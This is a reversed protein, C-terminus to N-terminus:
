SIICGLPTININIATKGSVKIDQCNALLLHQKNQIIDFTLYSDKAHIASYAYIKNAVLESFYNTFIALRSPRFLVQVFNATEDNSGCSTQDNCYYLGYEIFLENDPNILTKDLSLNFNLAYSNASFYLVILSAVISYWTNKM